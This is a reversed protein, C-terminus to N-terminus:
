SHLLLAKLLGLSTPVIRGENESLFKEMSTVSQSQFGLYEQNQHEADIRFIEETNINIMIGIDVLCEEPDAICVFPELSIISPPSIGVEEYLEERIQELFDITGDEQIHKPELSGSPVTEWFERYQTVARGRLGFVVQDKIMLIGSVGLATIQLRSKLDPHKRQALYYRYNTVSVMLSEVLGNNTVMHDLTLMKGDHLAGGRAALESRWVENVVEEIDPDSFTTQKIPSLHVSFTESTILSQNM